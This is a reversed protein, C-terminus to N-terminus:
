KAVLTQSALLFSTSQTVGAKIPALAATLAALADPSRVALYTARAQDYNTFWQPAHLRIQDATAKIEPHAALAARNEYEFSVFAHVATYAAVETTDAVYLAKDGAYAGDPALTGCGALTIALAALILFRLVKM